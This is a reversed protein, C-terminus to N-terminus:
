KWKNLSNFPDLYDIEEIDYSPNLKLGDKSLIMQLYRSANRELHSVVCQQHSPTNLDTTTKNNMWVCRRCQYADCSKCIPAYELKLLHSNKISIGHKVDGISNRPNDYYFAPCLYFCGNPALTINSEGANCNNMEKLMIRDTLLNVQMNEGLRYKARLDDALKELMKKYELIDKDSFNEIDTLVINLRSVKGIVEQLIHVRSYLEKRTTRIVGIAAKNVMLDFGDWSTYVLVDADKGQTDPKIDMHDVTDILDLYEQPLKYSPYVFQVNVNEKMSWLIGEKLYEFPILKHRKNRNDYYCYSVSTDDLLIVLHTLM